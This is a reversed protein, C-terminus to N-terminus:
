RSKRRKFIKEAQEKVVTQNGEVAADATFTGAWQIIALIFGILISLGLITLQVVEKSGLEQQPIHTTEVTLQQPGTLM